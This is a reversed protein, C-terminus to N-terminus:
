KENNVNCHLEIGAKKLGLQFDDFHLDPKQLFAFPQDLLDQLEHEQRWTCIVLPTKSIEQDSRIQKVADWGRISGPLEPEVIILAPKDKVALNLVADGTQAHLVTLGYKEVFRRLLMFMFQDAEGILCLTNEQPFNKESIIMMSFRDKILHINQRKFCTMYQFPMRTFNPLVKPSNSQIIFIYLPQGSFKKSLGENYSSLKRNYLEHNM